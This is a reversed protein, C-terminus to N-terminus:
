ALRNAILFAALREGADGEDVITVGVSRPAKETVETMISRPVYPEASVGLDALSWTEAPKKKAAMIAKFAPYPPEAFAETISVVAPLDTVVTSSGGDIMRLGALQSEAIACSTLSTVLAVNLLEAIMAPVAGGAGDTSQNGAVVLDFGTKGLAAALVAATVTLDAGVLGDDAIHIASHAGLAVGKRLPLSAEPPGMTMVVIEADISGALSVALHVAREGIEDLVRDSAGREALGTEVDLLRDGNTDPVVKVLVVIKV